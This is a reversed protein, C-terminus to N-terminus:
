HDLVKILTDLCRQQFKEDKLARDIRLIDQKNVEEDEEFEAPHNKRKKDTMNGTKSSM